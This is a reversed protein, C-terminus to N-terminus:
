VAALISVLLVILALYGTSVWSQSPSSGGRYSRYVYSTLVFALVDISLFLAFTDTAAQNVANLSWLVIVSCVQLAILSLVQFM